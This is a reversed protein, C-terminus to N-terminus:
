SGCTPQYADTLQAGPGGQIEGFRNVYYAMEGLEQFKIYFLRGWYTTHGTECPRRWAKVTVPGQDVRCVWTQVQYTTGGIRQEEMPMASCAVLINILYAIFEVGNM